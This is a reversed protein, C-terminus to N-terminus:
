YIDSVKTRGGQFKLTIGHDGDLPECDTMEFDSM